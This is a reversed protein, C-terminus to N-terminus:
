LTLSVPILDLPGWFACMRRSFVTSVTIYRMNKFVPFGFYEFHLSLM